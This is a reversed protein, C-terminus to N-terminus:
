RRIQLFINLQAPHSALDGLPCLCPRWVTSKKKKKSEIFMQYTVRVVSFNFWGAQYQTYLYYDRVAFNLMNQVPIFM